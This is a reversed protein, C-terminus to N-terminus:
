FSNTIEILGRQLRPIDRNTATVTDFELVAGSNEGLKGVTLMMLPYGSLPTDFSSTGIRPFYSNYLNRSPQLIAWTVTRAEKNGVPENGYLQLQNLAFTTSGTSNWLIKFKRATVEPFTFYLQADYITDYVQHQDVATVWGGAGDNLTDDWAQITWLSPANNASTWSKYVLQSITVPEDYMLVYGTPSADDLAAGGYNSSAKLMHDDYRRLLSDYRYFWHVTRLETDDDGYESTPEDSDTWYRLNVMRRPVLHWKDWKPNYGHIYTGFDLDGTLGFFSKGNESIEAVNVESSAVLNKQMEFNDQINFPIDSMSAPPTGDFLHLLAKGTRSGNTNFAYYMASNTFSPESAFIYM